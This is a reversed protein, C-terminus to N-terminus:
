CLNTSACGLVDCLNWLEEFSNQMMTGTLGYRRVVRLKKCLKSIQSTRNKIKHVEDFVIFSWDIENIQKFLSKFTDYSIIVVDLKHLGANAIVSFREKGIAISTRLKSWYSFERF